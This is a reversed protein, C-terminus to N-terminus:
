CMVKKKPFFGTELILYVPTQHGDGATDSSYSQEAEKNTFCPGVRPPMWPFKCAPTCCAAPALHHHSRLRWSVRRTVCRPLQRPWSDFGLRGPEWVLSQNGGAVHRIPMSKPPPPCRVVAAWHSGTMMQLPGRGRGPVDANPSM